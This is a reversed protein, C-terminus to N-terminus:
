LSPTAKVGLMFYQLELIAYTKKLLTIYWIYIWLSNFYIFLLYLKTHQQEAMQNYLM